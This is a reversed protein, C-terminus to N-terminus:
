PKEDHKLVEISEVTLTKDMPNWVAQAKETAIRSWVQGTKTDCVTVMPDYYKTQGEMPPTIVMQYRGVENGCSNLLVLMLLAASLRFSMKM